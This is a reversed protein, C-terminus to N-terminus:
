RKNQKTGRNRSKDRGSTHRGGDAQNRVQLGFSRLALKRDRAMAKRVEPALSMDAAIEGAYYQQREESSMQALTQLDRVHDEVMTAAQSKSEYTSKAAPVIPPTVIYFTKWSLGEPLKIASTDPTSPLSKAVVASQGTSPDQVAMGTVPISALALVGLKIQELSAPSDESVAISVKKWTLTNLKTIVDLAQPLDVDNLSITVEGRAKPDLVISQQSQQALQTIVDKLPMKQADLSVKNEAGCRAPVIGCTLLLLIIATIRM